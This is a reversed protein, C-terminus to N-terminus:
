PTGAFPDNPTMVGYDFLVETHSPKWREFLCELDTNRGIILHPDVGAQGSGCRFWTLTAGSIHVTWYFRMEPPGIYWRYEGNLLNVMDVPPTRTDGVQSLGATFPSYETITVTLGLLNYAVENIFFNRSQAGLLTMKFLLMQQRQAITSQTQFCPDPLGWNREWDPLLEITKRPDSEQELLDAARADVTGWYDCLGDITQWLIGDMFRKPWAQGEPLLTLFAERYDNGTRRVHRDTM